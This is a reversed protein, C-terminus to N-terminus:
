DPGIDVQPTRPHFFLGMVLEIMELIGQVVLLGKRAQRALQNRREVHRVLQALVRVLAILVLLLFGLFVCALAVFRGFALLLLALRLGFLHLLRFTFGFGGLHFSLRDLRVFLRVIVSRFFAGVAFLREPRLKGERGVGVLIEVLDVAVAEIFHDLGIVQAIRLLQRPQAGIEVLLQGIQLTHHRAEGVAQLAAEHRLLVAGPVEVKFFANEVRRFQHAHHDIGHM